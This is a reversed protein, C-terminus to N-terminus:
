LQSWGVPPQGMPTLLPRMWWAKANGKLRAETAEDSLSLISTLAVEGRKKKRSMSRSSSAAPKWPANHLTAGVNPACSITGRTSSSKAGSQRTTSTATRFREKAEYSREQRKKILPKAKYGMQDSLRRIITNRKRVAQRNAAGPPVPGAIQRCVGM